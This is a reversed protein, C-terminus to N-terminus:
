EWPDARQEMVVLRAPRTTADPFTLAHVHDLMAEISEGNFIDLDLARCLERELRIQLGMSWKTVGMSLAHQAERHLEALADDSLPKRKKPAPVAPAIEAPAERHKTVGADFAKLLECSRGSRLPPKRAPPYRAFAQAHAQAEIEATIDGPDLDIQQCFMSFLEEVERCVGKAELCRQYSRWTALAEGRMRHFLEGMSITAVALYPRSRASYRL